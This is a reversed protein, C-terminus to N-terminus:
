MPSATQKEILVGEIFCPKQHIQTLLVSSFPRRVMHEIWRIM